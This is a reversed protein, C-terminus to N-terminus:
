HNFAILFSFLSINLLLPRKNYGIKGVKFVKLDIIKENAAISRM